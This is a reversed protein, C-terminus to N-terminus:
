RARATQVAVRWGNINSRDMIHIVRHAYEEPVELFTFKDYINISRILHSPIDVERSILKALDGPRINQQRGITMFLRVMGPKAGTNGFDAKEQEANDILDMGRLSFSYRIM